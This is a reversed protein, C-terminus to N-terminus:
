HVMAAIQAAAPTTDNLISIEDTIGVNLIYTVFIAAGILAVVLMIIGAIIAGNGSRINSKNM